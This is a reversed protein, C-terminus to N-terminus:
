AVPKRLTEKGVHIAAVKNFAPFIYSRSMPLYMGSRVWFLCNGSWSRERGLSQELSRLPYEAFAKVLM